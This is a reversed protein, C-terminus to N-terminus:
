QQSLAPATPAGDPTNGANNNNGFSNVVGGGTPNIGTGGNNLISTDAIRLVAGTGEAKVGSGTNFTVLSSVVNIVSNNAGGVTSLARIGDGSNRSIDSERISVKSRDDAEIGVANREIQVHDITVQASGAAGPQIFIGAGSAFNANRIVTNKVYLQSAGSPIFKIGKQTVRNIQCNEVTLSLGNLFRIGDIATGFGEISLGRLVVSDSAGANVIVGTTGAALVGAFNGDNEITIAKTITVTGFAGNDLVDIVGGAATKSIAGAFTKCPATRSCPNLDDGVGSVWTRTQANAAVGLALLLGLGMLSNRFVYLVTKM